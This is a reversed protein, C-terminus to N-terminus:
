ETYNACVRWLRLTEQARPCCVSRHIARRPWTRRRAPFRQAKRSQVRYLVAATLTEIGLLDLLPALGTNQALLGARVECCASPAPWLPCFRIRCSSCSSRRLSLPGPRPPLEASIAFLEIGVPAVDVPVVSRTALAAAIRQMTARLASAPARLCGAASTNPSLRRVSWRQNALGSSFHRYAVPHLENWVQEHM